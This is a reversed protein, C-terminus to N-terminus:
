DQPRRGRPGRRRRRDERVCRVTIYSSPPPSSSSSSSSSPTLIQLSKENLIRQLNTNLEPSILLRDRQDEWRVMAAYICLYACFLRFEGKSVFDDAKASKTGAIKSGDDHSYDKADSFAKIYSPRFADWLDKGPEKGSKKDKPFKGVLVGLVWTELEALSCLGNGNPDAASFAKKRAEQAEDTKEALPQFCDMFKILDKSASKGVSLGSSFSRMMAAVM